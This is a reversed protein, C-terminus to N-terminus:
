GHRAGGRLLDLEKRASALEARLLQAEEFRVGCRRALSDRERTVRDLIGQWAAMETEVRTLDAQSAALDQLAQRLRASTSEGSPAGAAKLVQEDTV